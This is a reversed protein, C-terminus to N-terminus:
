ILEKKNRTRNKIGNNIINWSDSPFIGVIKWIKHMPLKPKFDNDHNLLHKLNEPIEETSRKVKKWFNSSTKDGFYHYYIFVMNQDNVERVLENYNKDTKNKTYMKYFADLQIVTTMISTAELPELFGGSLGIAVCNKIWVKEYCGPTFKILKNFNVDYGLFDIVEKKAEAETIENGDFIYGCGIRTQLPIQWMWGNKMAIARTKTYLDKEKNEIFFPIASNVMLHKEYSIWKPNYHKGILLRKFGSCDFVFDADIIKNNTKLGIIENNENTIPDSVIGEVWIVGREMSIKKLYQALLRANFHFSHSAAIFTKDYQLPHFYSSNEDTWNEFEIGIKLTSECNKILDDDSIGLENLFSKLNVTSGEGAGLIGIEESEVLTIKSDKFKDNLYLATLWGATGGGVIVINNLNARM